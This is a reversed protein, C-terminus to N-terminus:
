RSNRILWRNPVSATPTARQPTHEIRFDGCICGAMREKFERVQKAHQERLKKLEVQLSQVKREFEDRLLRENASSETVQRAGTGVKQPRDYAEKVQSQLDAIRVLLKYREEALQEGAVTCREKLAKNEESLEAVRREITEKEVESGALREAIESASRAAKWWHPDSSSRLTEPLADSM